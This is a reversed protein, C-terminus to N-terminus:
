MDHSVYMCIVSYAYHVPLLLCCCFFFFALLNGLQTANMSYFITWGIDGAQFGYAGGSDGVLM